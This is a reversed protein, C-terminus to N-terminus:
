AVYHTITYLQHGAALASDLKGTISIPMVAIPDTDNDSKLTFKPGADPTAKYITLITEVTSSDVYKTNTFKWARYDITPDNNGGAHITQISSTTSMVFLGGHIVSLVSADYVIMEFDVKIQETAVGEIPDPANGSQVDYRTPEHSINTIIGAGINAFTAGVSTAVEAKFNGLILNDTDVTSNQYVPM